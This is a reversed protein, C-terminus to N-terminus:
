AFRTTVKLVKENGPHLKNLGELSVPLVSLLEKKDLPVEPPREGLVTPDQNSQILSPLSHADRLGEGLHQVTGEFWGRPFYKKSFM